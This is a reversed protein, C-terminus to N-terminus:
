GLLDREAAALEARDDGRPFLHSYLDLTMQITEHGLREQVVKIPLELSRWGRFAAAAALASVGANNSAANPPHSLAPRARPNFRGRSAAGNTPRHAFESIARDRQWSPRPAM